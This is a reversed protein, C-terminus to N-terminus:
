CVSMQNPEMIPHPTNFWRDAILPLFFFAAKCLQFPKDDQFAHCIGRVFSPETPDSLKLAETTTSSSAYALARLANQIPEDQNQGRRTSDLFVLIDHPEEVWPLFKDWKYAGYMTLRSADWKKEQSYVLFAPAQMVIHFLQYSKQAIENESLPAILEMAELARDIEETTPTPNSFTETLKEYIRTIQLSHEQSCLFSHILRWRKDVVLLDDIHLKIGLVLGIILLCDAVIPAPPPPELRLSHLVFEKIDDPLPGGKKLVDWARYLLIHGM